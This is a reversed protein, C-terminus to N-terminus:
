RVKEQESEVWELSDAIADDITMYGSCSTWTEWSNSMYDAMQNNAGGEWYWTGDSSPRIFVKVSEGWYGPCEFQASLEVIEGTEGDTWGFFGIDDYQYSTGNRYAM